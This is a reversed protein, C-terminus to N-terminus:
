LGLAHWANRLDSDLTYALPSNELTGYVGDSTLVIVCEGAVPDEGDEAPGIYEVRIRYPDRFDMDEPTYEPLYAIREDWDFTQLVKTFGEVTETELPTREAGVELYWQGAENVLTKEGGGIGMPESVTIKQLENFLPIEAEELWDLRERDVESTLLTVITYVTSPDDEPLNIYFVKSFANYEGIAVHIERGDGCQLYVERSPTELGYQALDTAEAIVNEAPLICAYDLLSDVAEQDVPFDPENEMVWTEGELALWTEGSANKVGIRVVDESNVSVVNERQVKANELLEDHHRSQAQMVIFYVVLLLALIILLILGTRQRKNRKNQKEGAM